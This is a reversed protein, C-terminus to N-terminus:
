EGSGPKKENASAAVAPEDRSEEREWQHVCWVDHQRMCMIAEHLAKGVDGRPTTPRLTLVVVRDRLSIAKPVADAATPQPTAGAWRTARPGEEISM